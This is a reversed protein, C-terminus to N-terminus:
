FYKSRWALPKNYGLYETEYIEFCWNNLCLPHKCNERIMIKTVIIDNNINNLRINNSFFPYLRTKYTFSM